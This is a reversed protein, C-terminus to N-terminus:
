KKRAKLAPVALFMGSGIIVVWVFWDGYRTYITRSDLPIVWGTMVGRVFIDTGNEDKLRDIVRGYPDIICSVGTNACRIVFVRNEVARFVSIGVLQHPAATRGFHAENTINIMCQAGQRVFQRFLNPFVNEWCITVGFRFDPHEFVTFEKGPIYDVSGEINILSWPITNRYPLYEGFPFLRIKDYRQTRVLKPAPDTLFASNLYKFEMSGKEGFKQHQGSGLLLYTGANKAISRVEIHLRIDQNIAGPTATEPWVILAPQSKAAEETLEAYIQMIERAYRRDWKKKQDINGQVLSIKIKNGLIPQSIIVYGYLLTFTTLLCATVILAMRGKNVFLSRGRQRPLISSLTSLLHPTGGGSSGRGGPSPLNQPHWRSILPYIMGAFTANVMVILFSISYTGALSAVQIVSLYQYQSHALLAWPLALFSLNSRVWELSVWIFPAVFLAPTMGWRSSIFNFMLGFFGFYSGLYFALLAHHLLTYKPVVLIWKFIGMFFFIGCVLSLFFGYKLSKGNIAFLLPLLGIWALFGLNFDPFSLVLLLSSVVILFFDISYRFFKFAM